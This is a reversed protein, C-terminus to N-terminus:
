RRNIPLKMGDIVIWEDDVEIQGGPKEAETSPGGGETMSKMTDKKVELAYLKGDICGAYVTGDPGLCPSSHVPGGTKFKWAEIGNKVAHLLKDDSGVYVTGDPGACPSSHVYSDTRFEWLMRMEPKLLEDAVRDLTIDQPLPAQVSSTLSMTKRTCPINIPESSKEFLDSADSGSRPTKDLSKLLSTNDQAEYKMYAAKGPLRAKEPPIHLYPRVASTM